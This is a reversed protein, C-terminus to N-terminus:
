AFLYFFIKKFFYISFLDKIFKLFHFFPKYTPKVSAKIGAINEQTKTRLTFRTQYYFCKNAEGKIGVEKSGEPPRGESCSNYIRIHPTLNNILM